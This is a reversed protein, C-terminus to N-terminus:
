ILAQYLARILTETYKENLGITVGLKDAGGDLLLPEAGIKAMTELILRVNQAAMGEGIVSLLAMNETLLVTEAEFEEYMKVIIEVERKKIDEARVLFGCADVTHLVAYVYPTYQELLSLLSKLEGIKEGIGMRSVSFLTYGKQGVIGSIGQAQKQPLVYTADGNPDNTNRIVIPIKKEFIPLITDAHLVSAGMSSLRRLEGYSVTPVTKPKEVIKPDALLLGNVDTFNEYIEADIGDAAVAGTIDSGGRPFIHIKGNPLSGYFGPIVAKRGNKLRKELMKRTKENNLTGDKHFFIVDKADIFDFDLLSAFIKACFYEGRSILFDGESKELYRYEDSFDLPLGLEEIMADLRACIRKFIDKREESKEAQNMRFLMDTMKEDNATRKGPASVVVIERTPDARVIEAAKQMQAADCLSTGGFKVAKKGVSIVEKKHRVPM